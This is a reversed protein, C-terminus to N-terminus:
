FAMAQDIIRDKLADVEDHAADIAPNGTRPLRKFGLYVVGPEAALEYIAVVYPCFVISHPDAEMMRRSYVASCFEFSEAHRYLVTTAGLDAGTRELMGSINGVANVVLGEASIADELMERYFAYEGEISYTRRDTTDLVLTQATAPLLGVGLNLSLILGLVLGLAGARKACHRILIQSM